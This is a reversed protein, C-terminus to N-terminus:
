LNLLVIDGNEDRVWRGSSAFFPVGGGTVAGGGRYRNPRRPRPRPRQRRRRLLGPAHRKASRTMAYAAARRPNANARPGRPLQRAAEDALKVFRRAVVLEADEGSMGEVELGFLPGAKAALNAALDGGKAGGFFQGAARAGIPVAKKWTDGLLSKLQQGPATQLIGKLAGRAKRLLKSFFEDLEREDHIALLEAALEIEQDTEGDFEMLFEGDYEGDFEAEEEEEPELFETEYSEDDM